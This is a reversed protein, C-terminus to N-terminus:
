RSARTMTIRSAPPGVGVSAPSSAPRVSAPHVGDQTPISHPVSPQPPVHPVHGVPEHTPPVHVQVGSQTPRAQPSSPHPPLQPVHGVPEQTPPVHVQVGLQAPRTHPSSPHPPLQPEQLESQVSVHVYANSKSHSSPPGNESQDSQGRPDSQKSQPGREVIQEPPVQTLGYRAGRARRAARRRAVAGASPGVRSSM